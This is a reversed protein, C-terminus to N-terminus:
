FSLYIMKHYVCMECHKSSHGIVLKDSFSIQKSTCFLLNIMHFVGHIESESFCIWCSDCLEFKNRNSNLAWNISQTFKESRKHASNINRKKLTTLKKVGNRVFQSAKIHMYVCQVFVLPSMSFLSLRLKKLFFSGSVRKAM